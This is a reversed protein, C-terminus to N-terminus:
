YTWNALQYYFNAIAGNAGSQGIDSLAMSNPVSNSTAYTGRGPVLGRSLSETSGFQRVVYWQSASANAQMMPFSLAMTGVASASLNNVAIWYDGPLYTSTGLPVYVEFAGGASGTSNTSWSASVSKSGSTVLSLTAGNKTYLGANFTYTAGRTAVNTTTQAAAWFFLRASGLVMPVELPVYNVYVTSLPWASASATAQPAFPLIFGSDLPPGVVSITGAGGSVTVCGGGALTVNSGSVTSAGSTNGGLTWFENHASNWDIPRVVNTDTSDGITINKIHSVAV